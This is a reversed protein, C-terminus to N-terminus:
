THTKLVKRGSKLVGEGVEYTSVYTLNIGRTGKLREKVDEDDADPTLFIHIWVKDSADILTEEVGDIQKIRECIEKIVVM